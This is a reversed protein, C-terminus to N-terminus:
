GIGLLKKAVHVAIVADRAYADAGIYQAFTEDLAAGGVMVKVKSRLESARISDIVPIMNMRTTSLLASMGVIDAEHRSAAEIFKKVPVDIGIDYVQFGAGQLMMAVINKGIDHIDGEVTGIVIKGQVRHSSSSILPKLLAIGTSVALGAMFMERLFIQGSAYMDGVVRLATAYGHDVIQEPTLGWKLALRTLSEISDIRGEIVENIIEGLIHKRM